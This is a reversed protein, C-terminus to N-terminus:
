GANLINKRINLHFIYKIKNRKKEKMAELIVLFHTVLYSLTDANTKFTQPGGKVAM